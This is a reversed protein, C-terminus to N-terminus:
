NSKLYDSLISQQYLTLSLNKIASNDSTTKSKNLAPSISSVQILYISNDLTFIQAEGVRMQWIKSWIPKLNSKPKDYSSSYTQVGQIPKSANLQALLNEAEQQKKQDILQNIIKKRVHQISLQKPAHKQKIRFVVISNDDLLIARSNFVKTYVDDSYLEKQILPNNFFKPTNLHKTIDKASSIKVQTYEEIDKLSDPQTFSIEDIKNYLDISQQKSTQNLYQKLLQTKIKSLEPTFYIIETNKKIVLKNKGQKKTSTKNSNESTKNSDFQEYYERFTIDVPSEKIFTEFINANDFNIFEKRVKEMDTDSTSNKVNEKSIIAEYVKQKHPKKFLHKNNNYYSELQSESPSAPKVAPIHLYEIDFSEESQYVNKYMEYYAQIEKESPRHTSTIRKILLNRLHNNQLNMLQENVIKDPTSEEISSFIMNQLIQQQTEQISSRSQESNKQLWQQVENLGQSTDLGLKSSISALVIFPSLEYGIKHFYQKYAKKQAISQIIETKLNNLFIPNNRQDPQIARYYSQYLQDAESQSVSIKGVKIDINKNSKILYNELGWMGIIFAIFIVLAVALPGKLKKRFSVIM